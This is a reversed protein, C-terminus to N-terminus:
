NTREEGKILWLQYQNEEPLTHLHDVILTGYEGNVSIVVMGTANVAYDTGTLHVIQLAKADSQIEGIQQWLMLNSITLVMILALSTVGWVSAIPRTFMLLKECISPAPRGKQRSAVLRPNVSTQMDGQFKLKKILNQKADKPTDVILAMFALNSAVEQYSRLSSRCEQCYELHEEVQLVEAPDLCGLAYGPLLDKVHNDM